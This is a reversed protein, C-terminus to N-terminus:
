FKLVRCQLIWLFFWEPLSYKMNWLKEMHFFSCFDITWFIVVPFSWFIDHINDSLNEIMFFEKIWTWKCSICPPCYMICNSQSAISQFFFFKTFGGYLIVSLGFNTFFANSSYLFHFMLMRRMGAVVSTCHNWSYRTGYAQIYKMFHLTFNLHNLEWHFYTVSLVHCLQDISQIRSGSDAGNM